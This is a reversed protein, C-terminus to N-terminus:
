TLTISYMVTSGATSSAASQGVTVWYTKGDVEKSLLVSRERDTETRSSEAYGAETLTDVAATFPDGVDAYAQVTVQWEPSTGDATLIAGQVLPVQATPFDKPLAAGETAPADDGGCGTVAVLAVVVALIAFLVRNLPRM